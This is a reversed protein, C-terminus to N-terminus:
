STSLRAQANFFLVDRSFHGTWHLVSNPRNHEEPAAASFSVHVARGHMWQGDCANSNQRGSTEREIGLGRHRGRAAEIRQRSSGVSYPLGISDWSSNLCRCATSSFSNSFFDELIRAPTGFFSRDIFCRTLSSISSCRFASSERWAWSSLSAPTVGSAAAASLASTGGSACASGSSAAPGFSDFFSFLRRAFSAFSRSSSARDFTSFAAAPGDSRSISVAASVRTRWGSPRVMWWM